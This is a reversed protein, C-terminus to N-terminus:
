GCPIEANIRDTIIEVRGGLAGIRDVAHVLAQPDPHAGDVRIEVELTDEGVRALISMEAPPEEAIADVTSTVLHYAAMEAPEPLRTSPVDIRVPIGTEEKASELARALGADSLISPFIGHAVDRVEDIADMLRDISESLAAATAPDGTEAQALRLQYSLALLRQQAGDHLDRELHRRATDAALVIRQQSARMESEQARLEARLRENDVALRAASGIEEELEAAALASSHLVRGLEQGSREITAMTRGESPSTTVTAGEPDVYRGLRPIWYEVEVTDDHLSRRLISTLSGTELRSTLAALSKRRQLTAALDWGVAVGLGVLLSGSVGFLAVSPWGMPDSGAIRLISLTVSVIALGGTAWRVRDRPDDARGPRAMCVLLTGGVLLVVWPALRILARSLEPTALFAFVNPSCSRWCALDLFPDHAVTMTLAFAGGIVYALRIIRVDTAPPRRRHGLGLHVLLPMFMVGLPQALSRAWAPGEPWGALEPALWTLGLGAMVPGTAQEPSILSAALGVALMVVGAALVTALAWGSRAAYMTSTPDKVGMTIWYLTVAGALVIAATGFTRVRSM